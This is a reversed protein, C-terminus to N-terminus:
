GREPTASKGSIVVDRLIGMPISGEALARAHFDVANLGAQTADSRLQQWLRQGLAYSPAQGPWGLYRNLEFRLNADASASNARLFKWAYDADWVGGEPTQKRLHVGIDLAVRAARFRQADLLGMRNGPDELYGLEAMLNEAYLAWGEGHGSNWCALRRWTNLNDRETMALGIQLHHGPAGEHYVTTLEQWTHFTTEGPPVSWWMRGPRSFDDTPGTYFIGGTGAPDILCEITKVPEPIDFHVGDLERIAQDAIGQMWEVLADTGHLQYREEANLRDMAETVSVGSGYLDTAIQQQENTIEALRQLGWDYAEDLNVKAGVFEHSFLEYRERGVADDAPAQPALTAALWGSLEGFAARAAAVEPAHKDVGVEELMSGDKALDDCQKIVEEVQRIAAVNGQSAALELSQKYGDLAVPIAGLRTLMQEDPTLSLTDRILQVPSAINNLDRLNEGREHKALDVGLRDVLTAATVRDIDDSINNESTALNFLARTEAALADYYDPSFSDLGGDNAFGWATASLPSLEAIKHVYADCAQDLATPERKATNNETTMLKYAVQRFPVEGM